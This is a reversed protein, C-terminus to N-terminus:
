SLAKSSNELSLRAKSLGEMDQLPNEIEKRLVMKIADTPCSMACVGCGICWNHDVEPLGDKM